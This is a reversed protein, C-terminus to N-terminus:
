TTPSNSIPASAPPRRWPHRHWSGGGALASLLGRARGYLWNAGPLPDASRAQVLCLWSASRRGGRGLAVGRLRPRPRGPGPAGHLGGIYGAGAGGGGPDAGSLGRCHRAVADACHDPALRAAPGVGGGSATRRQSGVRGPRHHVVPGPGWAGAHGPRSDHHFRTRRQHLLLRATRQLLTTEGRQRLRAELELAADEPSAFRREHGADPFDLDWYQRVVLHGDSVKLFHGPALSTIGAFCTRMKPLSFFNFFYDLGRPDPQADVLGSALLGKIESAWLLWGDAQAYFLPAIGPRDRGILLTRRPRDWLAVAFQGRVRDFVGEGNDEYLHVWAETDCHTALRHGRDLLQRRLDLYDYLEGEYAVWVEGTENALPQRGGAVDIIALRRVGLALGPELHFHEDDPGRHAIARTMARLRERPFPRAGTLDIAGAIGCM